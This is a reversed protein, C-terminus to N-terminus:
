DRLEGRGVNRFDIAMLASFLASLRPAMEYEALDGCLVVDGDKFAKTLDHLVASFGKIFKEILMKKKGFKITEFACTGNQRMIIFIRFLKEAMDSFLKVTEAARANKGTQFDLPLNEMRSVIEVVAKEQAALEEKPYLFERAREMLFASVEKPPDGLGNLAADAIELIDPASEELFKYELSKKFAMYADVRDHLSYEAVERIIADVYAISDVVFDAFSGAQVGLTDISSLKRTCAEEIEALHIPIGDIELASVHSGMAALWKEVGALAEGVTDEGELNFNLKEKNLLITM